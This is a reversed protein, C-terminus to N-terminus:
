RANIAGVFWSIVGTAPEIAPSILFADIAEALDQAADDLVWRDLGDGPNLAHPEDQTRYKATWIM